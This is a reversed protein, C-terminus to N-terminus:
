FKYGATIMFNMPAGPWKNVNNYAGIWYTKNFINNLNIAGDFHRSEYRIGTNLVFYGPLTLGQELTNRVGAQSHGAAIGFGKLAGKKFVYKIWSNSENRPANEVLTGEQAAIKSKIVKAICYSYSASISLNTLINGNVETEVGRSRDEGQQIYLNPNSIDNANVAVNQLTLQYMSVSADFRNHFFIAKVGAELLESTVPKFPENFLQTSTSAEFPDFGKNYTAYLSVHPKLEYVLGVRPLFVNAEDEDTSDAIDDDGAEYMEQRLGILLKWKNISIQEQLYIGQTHYVSAEVDSAQSEYDSQNYKNTPRAFYKPNKLSFTGVIGSGEGFEDKDEYYKQNLDVKSIIYDYGALVQHSFKGTKFHFTFYNTFTNTTTHYNWNTYYLNVSDPTIYSQIGHEATNQQTTYHLYGSNFNIHKNIKYSFLVNTAFDTEHLYDGPQSAILNIPTSRLTYDNQFGPQGRDLITNIHSLSFDLNLQIRENPIFSVSPALEYSRAFYQNRFSNTKDYGANFRYLLTKDTNLPGTVDGQARYHDWTGGGISVEGENQALPKKTVLNITGGPDCNGYLTASPGKVVEIREVNVLMASTYTTNYGRLGNILTANEAKFGRISYDDYGSYNNVGAAEDAADKLTFEM